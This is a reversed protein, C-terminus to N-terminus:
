RTDIGGDHARVIYATADPALETQVIRVSEAESIRRNCMGLPLSTNGDTTVTSQGRRLQLLREDVPEDLAPQVHM